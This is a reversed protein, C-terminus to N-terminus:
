LTCQTHVAIEEKAAAAAAAAAADAWCRDREHPLQNRSNLHLRGTQVTLM